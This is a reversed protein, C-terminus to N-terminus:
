SVGVLSGRSLGGHVVSLWGAAVVVERGEGDVAVGVVVVVM